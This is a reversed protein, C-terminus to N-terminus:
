RSVIFMEGIGIRIAQKDMFVSHDDGSRYVICPHRIGVGANEGIGRYMM